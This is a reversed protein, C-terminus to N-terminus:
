NDRIEVDEPIGPQRTGAIRKRLEEAKRQQNKNPRYRKGTKDPHLCGPDYARPDHSFKCGRCSYRSEPMPYGEAHEYQPCNNKNRKADTLAKM